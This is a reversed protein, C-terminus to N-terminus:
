QTCIMSVALYYYTTSADARNVARNVKQKRSASLMKAKGQWHYVIIVTPQADINV